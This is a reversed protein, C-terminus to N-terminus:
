INKFNLRNVLKQGFIKLISHYEPTIGGVYYFVGGALYYQWNLCVYMMEWM